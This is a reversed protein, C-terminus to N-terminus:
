QQAALISGSMQVAATTVACVNNGSPVPKLVPYGGNGLVLGSQATLNYPGTMAVTGTGCLTGTGYEFTINGTGAAEVDLHTIYTTTSGSATILQTTVATSINIAGGALGSSYSTPLNSVTVAGSVPQTVASGDVKAAGASTIALNNGGQQLDTYGTFYSGAPTAGNIAGVLQDLDQKAALLNGGELAAGAPLPLAAASIPQTAPLNMVHVQAGADSNIAPQNAATAVGPVAISGNVTQTAPFNAVSVTGTVAQSAPLNSVAISGSVPQVAPFNGVSVSQVSPFNTIHELSGGDANLAPQNAATAGGAVSVTGTVAQLAPFNNIGVSWVGSQSVAGTTSGGGCGSACIFHPYLAPAPDVVTTDLTGPVSSISGATAASALLTAGTLLISLLKM